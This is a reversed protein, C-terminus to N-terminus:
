DMFLKIVTIWSLKKKMNFFNLLEKRVSLWKLFIYPGTPIKQVESLTYNHRWDIHIVYQNVSIGM